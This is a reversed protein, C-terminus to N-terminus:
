FAIGRFDGEDVESTAIAELQDVTLELRGVQAAHAGARDAPFTILLEEVFETVQRFVVAQWRM